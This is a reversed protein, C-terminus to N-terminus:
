PWTSVFVGDAYVKQTANCVVINVKTCKKQMQDDVLRNIFM